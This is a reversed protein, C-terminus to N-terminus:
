SGDDDVGMVGMLSSPEQCVEVQPHSNSGLYTVKKWKLALKPSIHAVLILNKLNKFYNVIDKFKDYWKLIAEIITRPYM